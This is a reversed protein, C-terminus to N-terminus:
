GLTSRFYARNGSKKHEILNKDELIRALIALLWGKEGYQTNNKPVCVFNLSLARKIDVSPVWRDHYSSENEKIFELLERAMEDVLTHMAEKHTM